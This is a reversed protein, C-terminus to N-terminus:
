KNIKKIKKKIKKKKKQLRCVTKVEYVNSYPKMLVWPGWVCKAHCISQTICQM